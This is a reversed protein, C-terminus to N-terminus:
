VEMGKKMWVTKRNIELKQGKKKKYIVTVGIILLITIVRFINAYLGGLANDGASFLMWFFNMFFHISIPVWINHNWESYVWAFLIAGLFTVLFIGVLTSFDDSQYLHIFAFLLAGIIVSPLFGLKTYRYLQGYLFGRFFLEEFFAASIGSILFTNLTLEMNLDFFIAYGILMPLTCILGFILGQSFSRNLGFSDFVNSLKHMYIVGLVLPIGSIAYVIIHSVGLQNIIGNLWSRLDYFFLDDLVFYGTFTVVTIVLIKLSKNM